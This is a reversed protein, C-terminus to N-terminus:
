RAEDGGWLRAFPATVRLEVVGGGAPAPALADDRANLRPGVFCVGAEDDRAQRGSVSAHEVFVNIAPAARRLVVDLRPLRVKGGIARGAGLRAGVLEPQKQM